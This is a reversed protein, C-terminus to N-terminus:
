TKEGVETETRGDVPAGWMEEHLVKKCKACQLLLCTVGRTDREFALRKEQMMEPVSSLWYSEPYNLSVGTMPPKSYTRQLLTWEHKCFWRDLRGAFLFVVVVLSIAAVAHMAFYWNNEIPTM